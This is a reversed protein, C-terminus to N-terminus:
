RILHDHPKKRETQKYPLNYQYIKMYQVMGLDKPHLWFFTTAYWPANIVVAKQMLRIEAQILLFQDIRDINDPNRAPKNLLCIDLYKWRIYIVGDQSKCM